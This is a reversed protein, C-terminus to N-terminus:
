NNQNGSEQGPRLAGGTQRPRFFHIRLHITVKWALGCFFVVVPRMILNGTQGKGLTKQLRYPGVYQFNETPQNNEKQM